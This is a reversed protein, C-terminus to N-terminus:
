KVVAGVISVLRSTLPFAITLVELFAEIIEEDTAKSEIKERPLDRAYGFFLDIIQDPMTVMVASIAEDFNHIDPNDVIHKPLGLIFDSLKKRWPRSEKAVLPHVQYIEGGLMVELPVKAIKDGETREKVIGENKKM